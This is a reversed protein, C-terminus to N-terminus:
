HDVNSQTERNPTTQPRLVALKLKESLCQLSFAKYLVELCVNMRFLFNRHVGCLETTQKVM